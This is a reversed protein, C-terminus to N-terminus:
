FYSCTLNNRLNVVKKRKKGQTAAGPPLSRLRGSSFMVYEDHRSSWGDFHVLVKEKDIELM